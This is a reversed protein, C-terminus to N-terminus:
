QKGTLHARNGKFLMYASYANTNGATQAAPVKNGAGLTLTSPGNGAVDPKPSANIATVLCFVAKCGGVIADLLSNCSASVPMGQGCYTYAKSGNPCASCTTTLSEPIPIAALSEVTINGCLGQTGDNTATTTQFSVFGSALAGPPPAPTNPAPTGDLTAFVMASRMNLPAPTGALILTLSTDSPGATLARSALKGGSLIHTPLLNADVDTPQALFSWDIPNVPNAKTGPWPGKAPDPSGSIVGLTLDPDSVGTPDDLGLAQILINTTGDSIGDKLSGNISDRGTGTLVNKGFFNTKPMCSAPATNASISIETMRLAVEYKCAADCGDLNAKNGDDCEEKDEITGNGCVAAVVTHCAADCSATGPPECQEGTLADVFGDGCSSSVCALPAGLCLKGAGCTAGLSLPTGGACTQGTSAGVTVDGCVEVGNCPNADVCSDPSKTCSPQCTAECGTGAGNGAGFDCAEGAAADVLGDGCSSAKCQGSVCISGAGCAAGDALPTGPQCALGANGGVTVAGCTETGNCPNSDACTDVSTSCSPKCSIECGTGPGNAAGFDCEEGTELVGNGCVAGPASCAGNQCTNPSACGAPSTGNVSADAVFGCTQGVKGSPGTVDNCVAKQCAPPAGCDVAADACTLKDCGAECGDGSTKNGDDCAEPPEVVGNGCATAPPSCKGGACVLGNGCTAGEKSADTVTACKKQADCTAKVCVSAPAPCDKAPDSCSVKCTPECGDGSATNGDDCQEGKAADVFGDGCVSAKCTGKACLMGSGCATGDAKPAGAQCLHTKADDCTGDSVCADKSKCDRTPDGTKCTLKCTTPECGDAAKANGDDCEEGSQVKGDGCSPPLCSGGICVKGGGCDGGEGLPTGAKCTHKATDCTETGNCPNKDDCKANGSCSFTCDPECGDGPAKNGDDCDEGKEIKGNGCLADTGGGSGATAGGSGAAGAGSGGAGGGAASGAQGGAGAGAVEDTADDSGGCAALCSVAVSTVVAGLFLKGVGRNSKRM